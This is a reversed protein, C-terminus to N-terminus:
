TVYVKTLPQRGQFDIRLIIFGPFVVWPENMYMISLVVRRIWSGWISYYRLLISSLKNVKRIVVQCQAEGAFIAEYGKSDYYNGNTGM